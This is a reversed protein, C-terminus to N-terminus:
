PGVGEDTVTAPAVRVPRNELMSTRAATAARVSALADAATVSVRREDAVCDIFAQLEAIFADQYRDPFSGLPGDAYVGNELYAEMTTPRLNDVVLNGKSGFVEFRQDYGYNTQRSNDITCLAGNALRLTM